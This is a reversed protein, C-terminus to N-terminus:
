STVTYVTVFELAGQLVGIGFDMAEDATAFGQSTIGWTGGDVTVLVPTFPTGMQIVRVGVVHEARVVGEPISGITSHPRIFRYVESVSGGRPM